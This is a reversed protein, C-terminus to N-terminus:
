FGVRRAQKENKIEAEARLRSIFDKANKIPCFKAQRRVANFDGNALNAIRGVSELEGKNPKLGLSECEAKFLGSAQAPKLYGFELKIDFRRLAAKDLSDKLNTTAVFVGEFNQMQTLMENVLTREWSHSAGARDSLFSDVEDFVLVAKKDRAQKFARAINQESQGM